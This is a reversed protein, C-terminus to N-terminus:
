QLIKTQFIGSNEFKAASHKNGRNTELLKNKRNSQGAIRLGVSKPRRWSIGSGLALRTSVRVELTMSFRALEWFNM